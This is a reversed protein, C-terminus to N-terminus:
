VICYKVVYGNYIWTKKVCAWQKGFMIAEHEAKGAYHILVIWSM